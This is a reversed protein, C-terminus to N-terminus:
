EGPPQRRRTGRCSGRLLRRGGHPGHLRADAAERRARDPRVGVPPAPDRQRISRGQSARDVARQGAPDRHDPSEAPATGPNEVKIEYTAITDTFRKEPATVTLKLKPEVVTVTKISEAEEKIFPLVDPSSATVICSQDGGQIADVALADLEERQNPALVPITLELTQEDSKDDSGHRLGPSLKARITVNRAPGDGINTVGIKFEVPQGKLVSAKSVSQDVKLLPKFVQTQAKSATQFLVTAAHYYPGTKVPKVRVTIIKESGAPLSSISWSLLTEKVVYAEPQSSVHELGDPLEDLVRVNMADSSGTNRVVLMLNAEQNLNMSSPAQVNVTM